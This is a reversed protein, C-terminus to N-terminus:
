CDLRNYRLAPRGSVFFAGNVVLRCVM